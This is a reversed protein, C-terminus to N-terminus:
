FPRLLLSAFTTLPANENQAEFFRNLSDVARRLKAVTERDNLFFGLPTDPDALGASAAEVRGVATEASALIREVRRWPEDSVLLRGLGGDTSTVQELNGVVALLRDHLTRDALLAGLTGQGAELNGLLTRMSALTAAVDGKMTADTLLAPLLGEGGDVKAMVSDLRALVSGLRGAVDQEELRQVLRNASGLAEELLALNRAGSDKLAASFDDLNAVLSRIRAQNEALIEEARALAGTAASLMDGPVEGRPVGTSLPGAAATGRDIALYQGGLASAAAIRFRADAFLVPEEFFRARVCIEGREPSPSILSIKGSRLGNIRVDDGVELGGVDAFTLTLTPQTGVTFDALFVTVVGLGVLLGFFILGTLFDRSKEM